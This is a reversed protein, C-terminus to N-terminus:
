SFILLFIFIICAKYKKMFKNMKKMNDEIKKMDSFHRLVPMKINDENFEYFEHWEAFLFDNQLTQFFLMLEFILIKRIPLRM